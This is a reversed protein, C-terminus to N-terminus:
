EKPSRRWMPLTPNWCHVEKRFNRAKHVTACVPEPEEPPPAVVSL